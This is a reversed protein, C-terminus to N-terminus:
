VVLNFMLWYQEAENQPDKCGRAKFYALVEEEHIKKLLERQKPSIWGQNTISAKLKAAFSGPKPKIVFGLMRLDNDTLKTRKVQGAAM